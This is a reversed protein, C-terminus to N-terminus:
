NGAVSVVRFLASKLLTSEIIYPKGDGMINSQYISWPEGNMMWEVQYKVGLQTNFSLGYEDELEGSAIPQRIRVFELNMNSSKDHPDTQWEFEEANSLGDGDSDKDWDDVTLLHAERWLSEPTHAGTTYTYKFTESKGKELSDTGILRMGITNTGLQPVHEFTLNYIHNGHYIDGSDVPLLHDDIIEESHFVTDENTSEVRFWVRASMPLSSNAKTVVLKYMNPQAALSAVLSRWDSSASYRYGFSRYYEGGDSSYFFELKANILEYKFFLSVKGYPKGTSWEPNSFTGPVHYTVPEEVDCHITPKGDLLSAIWNETSHLPVDFPGQLNLLHYVEIHSLEDFRTWPILVPYSLSIPGGSGIAEHVHAHRTLPYIQIKPAYVIVSSGLTGIEDLPEWVNSGGWGYNNYYETVGDVVRRNHTVVNHWGLGLDGLYADVDCPFGHGLWEDMVASVAAEGEGKYAYGLVEYGLSEEWRENGWKTMGYSKSGLGTTNVCALEFLFENKARLGESTPNEELMLDWKYPNSADVSIVGHGGTELYRHRHKFSPPWKHFAMIQGMATNVCGLAVTRSLPKDIYFDEQYVFGQNWRTAIEPTPTDGLALQYLTTFLLLFRYRKM